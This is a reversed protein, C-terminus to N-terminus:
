LPRQRSQIQRQRDAEQQVRQQENRQALRLWSESIGLLAYTSQKAGDLPGDYGLGLALAAVGALFYEQRLMEIRGDDRTWITRVNRTPSALAPSKSSEIQTEAIAQPEGFKERVAAEASSELSPAVIIRILDVNDQLLLVQVVRRLGFKTKEQRVWTPMESDPYVLVFSRMASIGEFTVPGSSVACARRVPDRPQQCEPVTLPQGLTLGFLSTGVGNTSGGAAAIAEKTRGEARKASWDRLAAQLDPAIRNREAIVSEIDAKGLVGTVPLNVTEQWRAVVFPWDVCAATGVFRFNKRGWGRLVSVATRSDQLNQDLDPTFSVSGTPPCARESGAGSKPLPLFQAVTPMEQAAASGALLSLAIGLVGTWPQMTM